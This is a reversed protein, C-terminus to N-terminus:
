AVINVSLHIMGYRNQLRLKPCALIVDAAYVAINHFARKGPKEEYEALAKHIFEELQDIHLYFADKNWELQM